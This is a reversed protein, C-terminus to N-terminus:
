AFEVHYYVVVDGHMDVWRHASPNSWDSVCCDLLVVWGVALFTLWIALDITM